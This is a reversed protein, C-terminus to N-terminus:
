ELYGLGRLRDQVDSYDEDEGGGERVVTNREGYQRTEIDRSAVASEPCFLETLVRGDMSEGVPEGLSHLVTPAIDVVTAGDPTSGPEINPGWALVVGESRHSGAMRGAASAFGRDTLSTGKEYGERGWVVLDPSADDRPFLDDGDMVELVPDGTDPDTVNSLVRELNRRLAPVDDPEVVGDEFRETDNIYLTGSGIVFAETNDYAVDYLVHDGPLREAVKGVVSEPLYKLVREESVGVTDLASRIGDRSVGFRDAIGRVGGNGRRMLHGAQQLFYNVYVFTSVPGFGHDSVVFLESDRESVYAMVEGLIDDLQRYHELLPEENWLLHQLRDPATYVFFFLRWDESEMQLRMLRRRAEVLAALDNRFEQERGTYESWELGIQYEPVSEALKEAFAQPYTLHPNTTSPTMMGSVMTGDIESAPFTMPVNGVQAPTLIDWLEPERIDNSTYMRQRYDKSLKRFGYLGHRDPWTGTAISPWALPTTPPSTSELPGFAGEELIRAFNPLENGGAWRDILDWPVGDLGLVFARDAPNGVTSMQIVRLGASHESGAKNYLTHIERITPLSIKSVPFV